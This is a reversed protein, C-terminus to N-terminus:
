DSGPARAPDPVTALEAKRKASRKANQYQWWGLLIIVTGAVVLGAARAVDGISVHRPDDRLDSAAVMLVGLVIIPVGAVVFKGFKYLRGAERVAGM